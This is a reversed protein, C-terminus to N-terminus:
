IGLKIHDRIETNSQHQDFAPRCTIIFPCAEKSKFAIVEVKSAVLILPPSNDVVLSPTLTSNPVCDGRVGKDSLLPDFSPEKLSTEMDLSYRSFTKSKSSGSVNIITPISQGTVSLKSDLSTPTEERIFPSSGSSDSDSSLSVFHDEIHDM